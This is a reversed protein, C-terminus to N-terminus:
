SSTLCIFILEFSKSVVISLFYPYLSDLLYWDKTLLFLSICFYKLSSFILIILLLFVIFSFILSAFSSLTFLLKFLVLCLLKSLSSIYFWSATNSPNFLYIFFLFPLFILSKIRFWNLFLYFTEDSFLESLYAWKLGLKTMFLFNSWYTYFNFVISNLKQTM